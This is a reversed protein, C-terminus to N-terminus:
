QLVNHVDNRSVRSYNTGHKPSTARNSTRCCNFPYGQCRPLLHICVLVCIYFPINYDNTTIQGNATGLTGRFIVYTIEPSPLSLPTTHYLFWPLTTSFGRFWHSQIEKRRKWNKGQANSRQSNVCRFHSIACLWSKTLIM